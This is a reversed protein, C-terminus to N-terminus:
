SVTSFFVNQMIKSPINQSGIALYIQPGNRHFPLFFVNQMIKSPINQSTKILTINVEMKGKLMRYLM